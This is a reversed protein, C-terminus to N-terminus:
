SEPAKPFRVKDFRRTRRLPSHPGELWLKVCFNIRKKIWKITAFQTAGLIISIALVNKPIKLWIKQIFIPFIGLIGTTYIWRKGNPSAFSHYILSSKPFNLSGQLFYKWSGRDSSINWFFQNRTLTELYINGRLWRGRFYIKLFDFTRRSLRQLNLSRGKDSSMNLFFNMKLCHKLTSIVEFGGEVSESKKPISIFSTILIKNSFKRISFFFFFM